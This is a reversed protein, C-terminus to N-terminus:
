RLFKRLLEQHLRIRGMNFEDLEESYWTIYNLVQIHLYLDLYMKEDSNLDLLDYFEKLCLEGLNFHLIFMKVRAFDYLPDGYMAESWDIIGAIENKVVDVFLNRQNFDTHLLSYNKNIFDLDSIRDKLANAARFILETDVGKRIAIENWNYDPHNGSYNFLLLEKWTKNEKENVILGASDSKILQIKQLNILMSKIYNAKKSDGVTMLLPYNIKQMVTVTKDEFAFSLKIQPTPVDINNEKILDIAIADIYADESFKVAYEHDDSTSILIVESDMGQEPVIVKTIKTNLNIEIQKLLRKQLDQDKM